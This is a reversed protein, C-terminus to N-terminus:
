QLSARRAETVTPRLTWYARASRGVTLGSFLEEGRRSLRKAQRRTALTTQYVMETKFTAFWSEAVANDLCSGVRSMSQTIRWKACLRRFM